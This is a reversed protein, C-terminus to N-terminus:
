VKCSHSECYEYTLIMYKMMFSQDYIRYEWLCNSMNIIKNIFFVKDKVLMIFIIILTQATQPCKVMNKLSLWNDYAFFAKQQIYQIYKGM